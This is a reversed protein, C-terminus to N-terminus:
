YYLIEVKNCKLCREFNQDGKFQHECNEQIEKLSNELFSLHNKTQNIEEEIKQVKM